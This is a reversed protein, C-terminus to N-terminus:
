VEFTKEVYFPKKALYYHALTTMNPLMAEDAFDPEDEFYFAAHEDETKLEGMAQDCFLLSFHTFSELESGEFVRFMGGGLATFSGVLGTQEHLAKRASEISPEDANAVAHMFGSKGILPHSKRRYLLWANDTARRVVLFLVSYAQDHTPRNSKLAHVGLKRGQPTLTYNGDDTKLVYGAKVVKQLHYTFLKNDVDAPKLETFRATPVFALQYVIRRQIHHELM